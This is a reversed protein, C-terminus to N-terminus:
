EGVSRLLFTESNRLMEARAAAGDLQHDLDDWTVLEYPVGAEEHSQAM